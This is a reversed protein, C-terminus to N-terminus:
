ALRRGPGRRTMRRESDSPDNSYGGEIAIVASILDAVSSNM